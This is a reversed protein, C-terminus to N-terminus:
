LAALNNRVTIQVWYGWTSDLVNRFSWSLTSLGNEDARTPSDVVKLACDIQFSYPAAAEIMTGSIAKLRVFVTSGARMNAVLGRGVADNGLVLTAGITPKQATHVAFSTLSSNLPWARDYLSDLTWEFSFDRLLKTTGLSGSASDLWVDCEAPLIPVLTKSSVGTTAMTATYDLRRAFLDGGITPAATRSFSFNIGSMLGYDAQEATDGLVGRRITWTKPTWPTSGPAWYWQRELTAGSPTTITAAGLVNSLPYVVETYTPFGSLSGTSSEQRPAVLAGPLQGMPSFEDYEIETDLTVDLGQFLVTPAVASGATSEVGIQVQESVIQRDAM